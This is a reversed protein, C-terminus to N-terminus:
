KCHRTDLQVAFRSFSSGKKTLQTWPRRFCIWVGSFVSMLCCDFLCEFLLVGCDVKRFFHFDAFDCVCTLVCKRESPLSVLLSM